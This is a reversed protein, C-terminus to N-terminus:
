RNRRYLSWFQSRAVFHFHELLYPRYYSQIYQDSSQHTGEYEPLIMLDAHDFVQNSGPMHAKSISNGVLLFSSGAAPKRHLLYSFPNYFGLSIISEDPKSQARLLALGDNLCKAFYTGDGDGGRTNTAYFSSSDYIRFHEMGPAAIGLALSKKEPSQYELLVVTSAVDPLVGAVIGGLCMAVLGMTLGKSETRRLHIASLRDLLIILWLPALECGSELANTQVFFPGSLLVILSLITFTVSQRQLRKEPETLYVLAVTGVLVMWVSGSSACKMIGDITGHLNLTSGRGQIASRMDTVFAWISFRPYALFALVTAASGAILGWTRSLETRSLPVTAFLLLGAIGFFNLKLFGLLILAAGSSAGSWFSHKERAFACELLIIGLLAYGQRNYIMACSLFRPDFGLPTPSTSTLILWTISLLGFLVPMRCRALQWGWLGAGLGFVATGIALAQPGGHSLLMGFGIIGYELPGLPSYFDRHPVQGNVIRWADDLLILADNHFVNIPGTALGAIAVLYLLLALVFALGAWRARRTDIRLWGVERDFYSAGTSTARSTPGQEAKM